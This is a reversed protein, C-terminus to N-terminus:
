NYVQHHKYHNAVPERNSVHPHRHTLKITFKSNPNMRFQQLLGVPNRRNGHVDFKVTGKQYCGFSLYLVTM